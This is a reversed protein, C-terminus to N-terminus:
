GDPELASDPLREKRERFAEGNKAKEEKSRNVQAGM